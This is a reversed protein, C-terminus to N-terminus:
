CGMMLLNFTYIAFPVEFFITLLNDAPSPPIEMVGLGASLRNQLVM